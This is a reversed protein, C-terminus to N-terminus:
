ELLIYLNQYVMALDFISERIDNDTLQEYTVMNNIKIIWDALEQRCEFDKRIVKNINLLLEAMKPQLRDKFRYNLKSTDSLNIFNSTAKAVNKGNVIKNKGLILKFAM